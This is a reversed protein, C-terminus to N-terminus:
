DDSLGSDREELDDVNPMYLTNDLLVTRCLFVLEGKAEMM